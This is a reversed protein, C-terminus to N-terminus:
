KALSLFPLDDTPWLPFFPDSIQPDNPAGNHGSFGSRAPTEKKGKQSGKGLPNFIFKM